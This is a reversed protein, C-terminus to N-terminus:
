LSINSLITSTSFISTYSYFTSYVQECASSCYTEWTSQRCQIVKGTGEWPATEEEEEVDRNVKEGGGKKGGRKEGKQGKEDGGGKDDGTPLTPLTFQALCAKDEESPQALENRIHFCHSSLTIM